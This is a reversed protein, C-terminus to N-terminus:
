RDAAKPTAPTRAARGADTIWVQNGWRFDTRKRYGYAPVEDIDEGLAILGAGELDRITAWNYACSRELSKSVLMTTVVLARRGKHAGVLYCPDPNRFALRGLLDLATRSLKTTTNVTTTM